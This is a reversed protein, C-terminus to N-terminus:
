DQWPAPSQVPAVPQGKRRGEMLYWFWFGPAGVAVDAIRKILSMALAADAPIGFGACLIVFAGEQVGIAGPVAFAAGRVAQGISEIIIAEVVTVPHGMFAFILYVEVSGVLWASLHVVAGTTMAAPRTRIRALASYFADTAAFATWEKGGALKKLASVILTGAGMRQIFYFAILTPAAILLGSVVTRVIPVSGGSQLLLVTGGVAFLFQTVVQIFLDTVVGAAAMPAAIGCATILRAAVIDGGIQTTPLLTNVADRTFRIAASERWAPRQDPPMVVWSAHGLMLTVAYRALVALLIGWGALGVARAIDGIRIESWILGAVAIALVTGVILFRKM